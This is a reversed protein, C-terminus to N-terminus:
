WLDGFNKEHVAFIWWNDYTESLKAANLFKCDTLISFLGKFFNEKCIEEYKGWPAYLLTFLEKSLFASTVYIYQPAIHTAKATTCYIFYTDLIDSGHIPLPQRCFIYYTGLIDISKQPAHLTHCHGSIYQLVIYVYVALSRYSIGILCNYCMCHTSVLAEAGAEAWGSAAVM